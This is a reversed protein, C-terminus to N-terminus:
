LPTNAFLLLLASACVPLACSEAGCRAAASLARAVTRRIRPLVRGFTAEELPYDSWNPGVAHVVMRVGNSYLQCGPTVPQVGAQTVPLKVTERATGDSKWWRKPQDVIRSMGKCARRLAGSVGGDMPKFSLQNAANVVATCRTQTIDMEVLRVIVSGVQVSRLVRGGPFVGIEREAQTLTSNWRSSSSTTATSHGNQKFEGGGGGNSNSNSNNNSSSGSGNSKNSHCTGIKLKSLGARKHPSSFTPTSSSMSISGRSRKKDASTDNNASSDASNVNTNAQSSNSSRDTSQNESNSCQCDGGAPKKKYRIVFKDM